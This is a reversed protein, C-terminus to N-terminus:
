LYIYVETFLLHVTKQDTTGTIPKKEEFDTWLDNKKDKKLNETRTKRATVFWRVKKLKQGM